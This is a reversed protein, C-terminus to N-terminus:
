RVSPRLVYVTVPASSDVVGGQADRREIVLKHEGRFVNRLQWSSGDQPEGVPQGDLTLLATEGSNLPPSMVGTVTFNGPGMPITSGDAPSTITSSYQTPPKQPKGAGASLPINPPPEASNTTGLHVEEVEVAQQGTPPTDSFVVNGNKDKYQYIEAHAPTPSCLVGISTVTIFFWFVRTRM